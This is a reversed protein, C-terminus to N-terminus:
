PLNSKDVSLENEYIFNIEQRVSNYMEIKNIYVNNAYDQKAASTGKLEKALGTVAAAAGVITGIDDFFSWKKSAEIARNLDEISDLVEKQADERRKHWMTLKAGINKAAAQKQWTDFLQDYIESEKELKKVEPLHKSYFLAQKYVKWQEISQFSIQEINDVVNHTLKGTADRTIWLGIADRDSIVVPLSGSPVAAKVALEGIIKENLKDEAMFYKLAANKVNDGIGGYVFGVTKIGFNTELVPLSVLIGEAHEQQLIKSIADSNSHVKDWDIDSADDGFIETMKDAFTTWIVIDGAPGKLAKYVKKIASIIAKATM